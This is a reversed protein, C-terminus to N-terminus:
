GEKQMSSLLNAMKLFQLGSTFLFKEWFYCFVLCFDDIIWEALGVGWRCFNRNQFTCVSLSLRSLTHIYHDSSATHPRGLPDVLLSGSPWSWVQGATNKAQNRNSLSVSTCVSLCRTFIAIVASRIHTLWTSWNAKKHSNWAKLWFVDNLSCCLNLFSLEKKVISQLKCSEVSQTYNEM